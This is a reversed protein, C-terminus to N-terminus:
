QNSDFKPRVASGVSIPPPSGVLVGLGYNGRLLCAAQCVLSKQL